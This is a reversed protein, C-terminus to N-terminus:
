SSSTTSEVGTRVSDGRALSHVFADFERSWHLLERRSFRWQPNDVDRLRSVVDLLDGLNRASAAGLRQKCTKVIEAPTTNRRLHLHRTLADMFDRALHQALLRQVGARQYIRAVAAAYDVADTRSAPPTPRPPGLRVAVAWVAIGVVALMQLVLWHLHHYRFYDWYGGGSRIGHHYEDFFVRGDIAALRAINYLLLVNDQRALGRHTWLSPDAILLVQGDGHSVLWAGPRDGVHWLPVGASGQVLDKGEVGLSQVPVTHRDVPEVYGGIETPEALYVKREDTLKTGDGVIQVRLQQHLTTSTRTMVVLTNGKAVWSLLGQADKESLGPTTGLMTRQEPEILILLGQHQTHQIPRTLAVPRFGLQRLVNAATALGDEEDSLVSFDPLGKGASLRTELAFYTAIGLLALLLLVALWYCSLRM